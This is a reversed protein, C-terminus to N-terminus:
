SLKGGNNYEIQNNRKTTKIEFAVINNVNYPDPTPITKYYNNETSTIQSINSVPCDNTADV